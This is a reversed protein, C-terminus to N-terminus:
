IDQMTQASNKSVRIDRLSTNIGPPRRKNQVRAQRNRTVAAIEASSLEEDLAGDLAMLNGIRIAPQFVRRTGVSLFIDTLFQCVGSADEIRKGSALL